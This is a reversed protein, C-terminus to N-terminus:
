ISCRLCTTTTPLAVLRREDIPKGCKSCEEYTGTALRKLASNLAQRNNRNADNNSFADVARPGEDRGRRVVEERTLSRPAWFAEEEARVLDGNLFERYGPLYLMSLREQDAAVALPLRKIAVERNLRTDRARFVEGMGGAGLPGLIEFAGLRTM